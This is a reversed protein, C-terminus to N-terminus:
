RNKSIHVNVASAKEIMSRSYWDGIKLTREGVVVPLIIAVSSPHTYIEIYM